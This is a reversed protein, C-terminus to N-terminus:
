VVERYGVGHIQLQPETQSCVLDEMKSVFQPPTVPKAPTGVSRHKSAVRSRAMGPTSLACMTRLDGM